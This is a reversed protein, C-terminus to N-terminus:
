ENTNSTFSNPIDPGCTKNMLVTGDGDTVQLDIHTVQKEKEKKNVNRHILLFICNLFPNSVKVWDYYCDADAETDFDQFKIIISM